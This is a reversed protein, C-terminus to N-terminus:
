KDADRKPKIYRDYALWGFCLASVIWPFVNWFFFQSTM